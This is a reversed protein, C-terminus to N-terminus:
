KILALSELKALLYRLHLFRIAFICAHYQSSYLCTTGLVLDDRCVVYKTLYTGVNVYRFIDHECM